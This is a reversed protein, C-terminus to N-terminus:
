STLKVCYDTKIWFLFSIGNNGEISIRSICMLSFLRALLPILRDAIVLVHLRLWFGPVPIIPSLGRNHIFNKM